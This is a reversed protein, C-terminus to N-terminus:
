ASLGLRKLSAVIDDAVYPKGVVAVKPQDKFRAQLDMSDHGTAIIIPLVPFM